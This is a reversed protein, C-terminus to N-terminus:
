IDKAYKHARIHRFIRTTRLFGNLSKLRETQETAYRNHDSSFYIITLFAKIPPEGQLSWFIYRARNNRIM